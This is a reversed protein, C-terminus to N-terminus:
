FFSVPASVSRVLLSAQRNKMSALCVNQTSNLKAKKKPELVMKHSSKFCKYVRMPRDRPEIHGHPARCAVCHSYGLPNGVTHKRLSGAKEDMQSGWWDDAGKKPTGPPFLLYPRKGDV